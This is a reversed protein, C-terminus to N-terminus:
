LLYIYLVLKYMCVYVNKTNQKINVTEALSIFTTKENGLFYQVPSAATQVAVYKYTSSHILPLPSPLPTLFLVPLTYCAVASKIAQGCNGDRNALCCLDISRRNKKQKPLSMHTYTRKHM